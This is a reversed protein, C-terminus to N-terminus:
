DVVARLMSRLYPGAGQLLAQPLRRRANALADELAASAEEFVGAGHGVLIRDPELGGLLARPPLPRRVLTLGVREDGVRAFPVTSLLDPTYLTGDGERYAVGEHWGPLPQVHDVRFGSGGPQREFRETEADVLDPVRTLWGPISVPVDYRRAFVGADRAHWNSLVAVGAVDGLGAILDDVGPADLPDLLWVGDEGGVAHSARRGREDPHAIWGVGEDWEDIVVPKDADGRDYVPV